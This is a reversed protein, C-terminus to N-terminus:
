KNKRICEGLGKHEKYGVEQKAREHDMKVFSGVLVLPFKVTDLIFEAIKKNNAARKDMAYAPIVASSVFLVAMIIIVAHKM